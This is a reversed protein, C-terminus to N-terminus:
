KGKSSISHRERAFRRGWGDEQRKPRNNCDFNIQPKGLSLRILKWIENDLENWELKDADEAKIQADYDEPHTLNSSASTVVGCGGMRGSKDQDGYQTKAMLLGVTRMGFTQFIKLDGLTDM